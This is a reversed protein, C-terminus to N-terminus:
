NTDSLNVIQRSDDIKKSHLYDHDLDGLAAFPAFQKARQNQPMKPHKSVPRPLNIIDSYDNPM